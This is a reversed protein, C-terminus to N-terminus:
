LSLPFYIYNLTLSTFTILLAINIHEHSSYNNVDSNILFQNYLMYLVHASYLFLLYTFMTLLCM